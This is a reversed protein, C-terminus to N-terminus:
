HSFNNAGQAHGMGGADESPRVRWGFRNFLADVFGMLFASPTKLGCAGVQDDGEQVVM